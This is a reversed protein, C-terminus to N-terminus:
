RRNKQGTLILLKHWHNHEIDEDFYDCDEITVNISNKFLDVLEEKSIGRNKGLIEDEKSFTLIFFWGNKKLNSLINKVFIEKNNIFPLVAISYILDVEKKHKYPLNLDYKPLDLGDVKWGRDRLAQVDIGKGEGFDLATGVKDGYVKNIFKELFTNM